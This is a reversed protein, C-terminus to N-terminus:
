LRPDWDKIKDVCFELKSPINQIDGDPVMSAPVNLSWFISAIESDYDLGVTDAASSGAEAKKYGDPLYAQTCLNQRDTLGFPQRHAPASGFEGSIFLM